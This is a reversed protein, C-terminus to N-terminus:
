GTNHYIDIIYLNRIKIMMDIYKKCKKNVEKRQSKIKSNIEKSYVKEFVDNGNMNYHAYIDDITMTFLKFRQSEIRISDFGDGGYKYQIIQNKHNRVTMDYEVKYDELGKILRRQIYGTQSTKCATDFLVLVGGWLM